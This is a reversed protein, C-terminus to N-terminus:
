ARRRAAARKKPGGAVPKKSATKPKVPRRSAAKAPRAKRKPTSAPAAAKGRAASSRPAPSSGAAQKPVAKAPKRRSPKVRAAAPGTGTKRKGARGGAAAELEEWSEQLCQAYFQPDPMLERCSVFTISIKGAGSIVAHFIGLMDMLPGLGIILEMRAGALYLPVQPGPVNSVVTHMPMGFEAARAVAMGLKFGGGLVQPWLGRSFEMMATAGVASAYDKSQRASDRVALLRAVPDEVDTALSMSMIGVQNGRSESNREPRVNIPAGTILSHEPLVGRARLYKRLGGGTVAVIVDNVTIDEVARRIGKVRDLDMILTDMVRYSSVRDNFITRFAGPKARDEDAGRSASIMRPVMKRLTEVLRLPRRVTNLYARPWTELPSPESEGEWDDRVLPPEPEDTLSHIANLIEAASVGDIAAHHVKLMIAFCNPPLHEVGNLGEIVYAEWLPRSMDLGRAHLRALLICLQRWDGPQPLAIHRVHFELDFEPDEVWYPTDLGFTSGGLKRRFVASKHLSREFVKLIDKFRVKGGPATSQDYFMVPTIHMPTRNSEMQVFSYDMETLQEM